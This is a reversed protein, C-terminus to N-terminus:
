GNSAPAASDVHEVLRQAIEEIGATMGIYARSASGNRRARMYELLVHELRDDFEIEEVNDVLGGFAIQTCRRAAHRLIARCAKIKTAEDIATDVRNLAASLDSM